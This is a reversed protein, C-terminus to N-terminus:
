LGLLNSYHKNVENSSVCFYRKSVFDFLPAENHPASGRLSRQFFIASRDRAMVNGVSIQLKLWDRISNSKWVEVVTDLLEFELLINSSETTETNSSTSLRFYGNKLTYILQISLMDEKRIMRERRAKILMALIGQEPSKERVDRTTKFQNWRDKTSWWSFFDNYWRRFSIKEKSIQQMAISRLVMLEELEFYSEMRNLELKIVASKTPNILHEKYYRVYMILERARQIVFPWNGVNRKEKIEAIIREGAFKWQRQPKFKHRGFQSLNELVKCCQVYQAHRLEFELRDILLDCVIRPQNLSQLSTVSCNRKLRVRLNSPMLIFEHRGIGSLTMKKCLDNLPLDRFIETGTDWYVSLADLEVLKFMEHSASAMFKSPKWQDDCTQATFSELQIGFAFKKELCSM